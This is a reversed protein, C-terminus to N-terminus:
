AKRLLRSMEYWLLDIKNLAAPLDTDIEARAKKLSGQLEEIIEKNKGSASSKAENLLDNILDLESRATGVNKSSIEVRAKLIHGRISAMTADFMIEQIKSQTEKTMKEITEAQKRLAEENTANQKKITEDIASTSRKFSDELSVVKAYLANVTHIVKQFDADSQLPAIKTIEEIKQLRQKIDQVEAKLSATEKEILIPLGFYGAGILVFVFLLILIVAKM